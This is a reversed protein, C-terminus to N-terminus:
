TADREINTSSKINGDRDREVVAETQRTPMSVISIQQQEPTNVTVNAPAVHIVPAAQEPVNVDVHVNPAPQDPMTLNIAPLPKGIAQAVLAAFRDLTQHHQKQMAAMATLVPDIAQQVIAIIKTDDAPEVTGVLAKTLTDRKVVGKEPKQEQLEGLDGRLFIRKGQEDTCISGDEGKDIVILKREARKRHGIIASHRVNHSTTKGDDGQVDVQAGHKGVAAVMGHQAQGTADSFYISDGAYLARHPTEKKGPLAKAMPEPKALAQADSVKGYDRGLVNKWYFNLSRGESDQATIGDQGVKAVRFVATSGDKLSVKAKDGIKLYHPHETDPREQM